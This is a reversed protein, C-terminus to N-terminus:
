ETAKEEDMKPNWFTLVARDGDIQADILHPEGCKDCTLMIQEPSMREIRFVTNGCKLCKTANAMYKKVFPDRRISDMAIDVHKKIEEKSLKKDKM